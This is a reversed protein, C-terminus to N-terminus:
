AGTILASSVQNDKIGLDKDLSYMGVARVEGKAKFCTTPKETNCLRSLLFMEGLQFPSLLM